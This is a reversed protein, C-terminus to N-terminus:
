SASMNPDHRGEGLAGSDPSCCSREREQQEGGCCPSVEAWCWKLSLSFPHPPIHYPQGPIAASSFFFFFSSALALTPVTYVPWTTISFPSVLVLMGAKADCLVLLSLITSFCVFRPDNREISIKIFHCCFTCESRKLHCCSLTIILFMFLYCFDTWEWQHWHESITFCLQSREVSAFYM